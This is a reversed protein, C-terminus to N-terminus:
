TSWGKTSLYVLFLEGFFLCSRLASCCVAFWEPFDLLGGGGWEGSKEELRWWRNQLPLNRFQTSISLSIDTKWSDHSCFISFYLNLKIPFFSIRASPSYKKLIYKVLVMKPGGFRWPSKPHKLSGRSSLRHSTRLSTNEINRTDNWKLKCKSRM